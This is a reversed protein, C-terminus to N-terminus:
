NTLRKDLYAELEANKPNVLVIYGDPNILFKSPVERVGYLKPIESKFRDLQLIHTDWNLNDNKIATQWSAEKTEIAINVIEFKKNKDFTKNLYKKHMRVLNPNDKRCPPCWSGWFDLLVYRDSKEALDYSAGNALTASFVPALEGSIQSPKFYLYQGFKVGGYIIVVTLLTSLIKKM